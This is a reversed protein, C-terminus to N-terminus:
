LLITDYCLFILNSQKHHTLNRWQTAEYECQNCKLQVGVHVSERHKTFNNLKNAKYECQDCEYMVGEQKSYIHYQLGSNSCDDNVNLYNQQLMEFDNETATQKELTEGVTELMDEKAALMQRTTAAANM